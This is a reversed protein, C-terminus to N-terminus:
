IKAHIRKYRRRLLIAPVAFIAIWILITLGYEMVFLFIGIVTNAAHQFGGVFADRVRAGLSGSGGVHVSSAESLTLDISAFDVRHELNTQEAEMSEIEGRVNAIQEEVQLVDSVSGTRQALIARFRDETERATKLRQALDVHQQTVDEGSESENAVRGLARLDALAAPLNQAPVRLSAQLSPVDNDPTSITIQAAYGHERALVTDLSKRATNVDKVVIVLSATRAIMPGQAPPAEPSPAGGGGGRPSNELNESVAAFERRQALEQEQARDVYNLAGGGAGAQPGPELYDAPGAQSPAGVPQALFTMDRDPRHSVSVGIAILLLAAVAAGTSGLTWWVWRRRGRGLQGAGKGIKGGYAARRLGDRMAREASGSFQPANWGAMAVSVERLQKVREACEACSQVHAALEQAEAASSEGDCIAMLEEPAFPHTTTM